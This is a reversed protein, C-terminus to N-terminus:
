SKELWDFVDDLTMDAAVIRPRLEVIRYTGDARSRHLRYGVRRLRGRLSSADRSGPKRRLPAKRFEYPPDALHVITCVRTRSIGLENAVQTQTKGALMLAHVREHVQTRRGSAADGVPYPSSGM